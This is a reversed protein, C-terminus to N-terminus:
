GEWYVIGGQAKTAELVKGYFPALADECRDALGYLGLITNDAGYLGPLTGPVGAKVIALVQQATTIMSELHCEAKFQDAAAEDTTELVDAVATM